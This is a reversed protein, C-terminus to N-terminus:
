FVTRIKILKNRIYAVTLERGKGEKLNPLPPNPAAMLPQLNIVVSMKGKLRPVQPSSENLPTSTPPTVMQTPPPATYQQVISILDFVGVSPPMFSWISQLRKSNKTQLCHVLIVHFLEYHHDIQMQAFHNFTHHPAEESDGGLKEKVLALAQDWRDLSLLLRLADVFLGSECLLEFRIDIITSFSPTDNSFPQPSSPPTIISSIRPSSPLSDFSMDLSATSSIQTNGNPINFPLVSLARGFFDRQRRLDNKYREEKKPSIPLKSDGKANAISNSITTNTVTSRPSTNPSTTNFEETMRINALSAYNVAKVFPVVMDPKCQFYLRCMLEFYAIHSVVQDQSQNKKNINDELLPEPALISAHIAPPQIRHREQATKAESVKKSWETLGFAAELKPLLLDPTQTAYHHLLIPSVKLM